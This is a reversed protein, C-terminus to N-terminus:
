NILSLGLTLNGCLWATEDCAEQTSASSTSNPSKSLVRLCPSRHEGLLPFLLLLVFCEKGAIFSLQSISVFPAKGPAREERGDQNSITVPLSLTECGFVIGSTQMCQRRPIDMGKQWILLKLLLTKSKLLIQGVEVINWILDKGMVSMLLMSHLGAGSM